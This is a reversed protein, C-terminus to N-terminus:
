CSRLRLLLRRAHLYTVSCALKCIDNIFVCLLFIFYFGFGIRLFFASLPISHRSFYHTKIHRRCCQYVDPSSSPSLMQPPPQLALIRAGSPASFPVSFLNTNSLVLSRTSHYAHLHVASRLHTPQSSRLSGFSSRRQGFLDFM